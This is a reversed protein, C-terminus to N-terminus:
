EIFDVEYFIILDSEYLIFYEEEGLTDKAWKMALEKSAFVVNEQNIDYECEIVWLQKM